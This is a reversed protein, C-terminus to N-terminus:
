PNILKDIERVIPALYSQNDSTYNTPNHTYVVLIYPDESHVVGTDHFYYSTSGSKHAVPHEDGLAKKICPHTANLFINYLKSGNTTTKSYNYIEAWWLAADLASVQPWNTSSFNAYNPCGLKKAYASLDAKNIYRQLMTYAINDSYRISYDAVQRLTYVSGIASTKIIGSGPYYDASTYTLYTNLNYVGADEQKFAYLSALAKYSSACNYLANVNYAITAGDSIRVAIFSCKNYGKNIATMLATTNTPIDNKSSQFIDLGGTYANGKIVASLNSVQAVPPPTVVPPSTTQGGVSSGGNGNGGTSSGGSGGMNPNGNTGNGNNPNQMIPSNPKIATIGGGGFPYMAGDEGYFDDNPKTHTGDIINTPLDMIEANEDPTAPTTTPFDTDSESGENGGFLSSIGWIMVSVMIAALLISCGAKKLFSNM